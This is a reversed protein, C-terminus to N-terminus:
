EWKTKELFTKVAQSLNTPTELPAESVEDQNPKSLVANRMKNYLSLIVYLIISSIGVGLMALVFKKAIKKKSVPQKYSFTETPTLEPLENQTSVTESTQSIRESPAEDYVTELEAFAPVTLFLALLITLIKNKM